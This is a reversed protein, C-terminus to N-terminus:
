KKKEESDSKKKDLYSYIKQKDFKENLVQIQKNNQPNNVPGNGYENGQMEDIPSIQKVYYNEYSTVLQKLYLIDIPM